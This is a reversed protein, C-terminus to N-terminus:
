NLSNNFEKDKNSTEKRLEAEFVSFSDKDNNYVKSDVDKEKEKDSEEEKEQEKEKLTYSNSSDCKITKLYRNYLNQTKLLKLYSKLPPSQTGELILGYQFKCFNIIWFKTEDIIFIRKGFIKIVEEKDFTCDIYYGALEFDERWVGVSDCTDNIYFWLLKHKMELKRFWKNQNWKTTETYRKM